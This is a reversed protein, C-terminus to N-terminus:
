HPAPGGRGWITEDPRLQNKPREGTSLSSKLITRHLHRFAEARLSASQEANELGPVPTMRLASGLTHLLRCAPLSELTGLQSEAAAGRAWRWFM